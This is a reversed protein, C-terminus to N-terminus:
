ESSALEQEAIAPLTRPWNGRYVFNRVRCKTQNSWRFLGFCRRERPEQFDFAGCDAGNVFLTARDGSVVVKVHNWDNEKLPAPQSGPLDALNEPTRGSREFPGDTRLHLKPGEPRLVLATRGLCPHAEHQGPVYFTEFEFEGDEVMPRHYMLVSQLSKTGINHFGRGTLEEGFYQWASYENTTELTISDFYETRFGALKASELPRIEDPITPTGEIRLSHLACRQGPDFAQIAIWPDPHPSLVEERILTGNIAYKVQTGDVSIRLESVEPLDAIPFGGSKEFRRILQASLTEYPDGVAGVAHM